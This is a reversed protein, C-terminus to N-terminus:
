SLSRTDSFQLAPSQPFPRFCVLAGGSAVAVAPALACLSIASSAVIFPTPPCSTGPVAGPPQLYSTVNWDLPDSAALATSFDGNIIFQRYTLLNAQIDMSTSIGSSASVFFRAKSAGVISSINVTENGLLVNNIFVFMKGDLYVLRM